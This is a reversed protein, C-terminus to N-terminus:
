KKRMRLTQGPGTYDEHLSLYGDKFVQLRSMVLEEGPYQANLERKMKRLDISFQGGADTYVGVIEKIKPRTTGEPGLVSVFRRENIYVLVEVRQLRAGTDQDMVVGTVVDPVEAKV